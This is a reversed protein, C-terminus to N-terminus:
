DDGGEVRPPKSEEALIAMRAAHLMPAVIFDMGQIADFTGTLKALGYGDQLTRETKHGYPDTLQATVEITIRYINKM